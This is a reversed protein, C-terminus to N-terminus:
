EDREYVTTARWDKAPGSVEDDIEFAGLTEGAWRFRYETRYLDRICLHETGTARDAGDFAIRHFHGGRVGSSDAFHVDLGGDRLVFVYRRAFDIASGDEPTFRGTETQLLEDGERLTFTATGTASGSPLTTSRSTFTRALRWRGQLAAFLAEVTPM